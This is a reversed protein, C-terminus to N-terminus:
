TAGPERHCGLSRTPSMECAKDKEEERSESKNEREEQKEEEAEKMTVIERSIAM